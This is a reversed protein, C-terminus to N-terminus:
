SAKSRKLQKGSAEKQSKKTAPKAANRDKGHKRSRCRKSFYFTTPEPEVHPYVTIEVIEIEEEEIVTANEAQFEELALEAAEKESKATFEFSWRPRRGERLDDWSLLPANPDPIQKIAELDVRYDMFM